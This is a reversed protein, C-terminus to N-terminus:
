PTPMSFPRRLNRGESIASIVEVVEPDIESPILTRAIQEPGFGVGYQDHSWASLRSLVLKGPALGWRQDRDAWRETVSKRAAKLAKPLGGARDRGHLITIISDEIPEHRFSEVIEDIQEAIREPTSGSGPAKTEIVRVIAGPVLLFNEIEKRSWIRLQVGWQRAEVYREMHEEPPFYDADLIAFSRIKQGDGNKSPLRDAVGARWGGRGGIEVHPVLDIPGGTLGAASQLVRLLKVDAGEVLFFSEASMLRTLQINQVAGLNDM